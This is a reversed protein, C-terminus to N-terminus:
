HQSIRFLGFLWGASFAVRAMVYRGSGHATRDDRCCPENALLGDPYVRHESVCSIQTSISVMSRALTSKVYCNDDSQEAM